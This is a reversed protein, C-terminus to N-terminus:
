VVKVAIQKPKAAEAKPLTLTLVGNKLEANIKDRDILEPITFQRYYQGVDYEILLDTEEADEFPKIEGSLTLTDERLDINLDDKKVGPMDAMLVINGDIEYIDVPPIFVPGPKTQEAAGAVEQKGKVQIDKAQADNAM